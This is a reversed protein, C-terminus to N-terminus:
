IIKRTVNTKKLVKLFKDNEIIKKKKGIQTCREVSNQIKKQANYIDQNIFIGTTSDTTVYTSRLM